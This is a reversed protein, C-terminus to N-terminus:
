RSPKRPAELRALSGPDLHQFLPRASGGSDGNFSHVKRIGAAAGRELPAGTERKSCLLAAQMLM